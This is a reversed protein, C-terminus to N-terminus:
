GGFLFGLEVEPMIFPVVDGGIGGGGIFGFGGLGDVEGVAESAVWGRPLDDPLGVGDGGDGPEDVLVGGVVGGGLARGRFAGFEAGVVEAVAGEEVEEDAAEEDDFGDLVVEFLGGLEGEIGVVEAMFVAGVEESFGDVGLLEGGGFLGDGGLDRVVEEEVHLLDEGEVEVDEGVWGVVCVAEEVAVEVARGGVGEVVVAVEVDAVGHFGGDVAVEGGLLEGEEVEAVM